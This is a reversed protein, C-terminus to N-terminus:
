MVLFVLSSNKSVVSDKNLVFNLLFQKLRYDTLDISDDQTLNMFTNYANLKKQTICFLYM